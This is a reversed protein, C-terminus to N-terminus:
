FKIRNEIDVRSGVAGYYAVVAFGLLPIIYALQISHTVDSIRGMIVPIIAGGVIAM